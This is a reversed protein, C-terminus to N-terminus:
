AHPADADPYRTMAILASLPAEHLAALCTASLSVWLSLRVIAFLAPDGSLILQLATPSSPV